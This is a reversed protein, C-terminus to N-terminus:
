SFHKKLKMYFAKKTRSIILNKYNRGKAEVRELNLIIIFISYNM